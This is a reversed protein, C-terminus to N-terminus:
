TRMKANPKKKRFCWWSERESKSWRVCPCVPMSLLIKDRGRYILQAVILKHFNIIARSVAFTKNRHFKLRFITARLFNRSLERWTRSLRWRNKKRKAIRPSWGLYINEREKWREGRGLTSVEISAASTQGSLGALAQHFHAIASKRDVFSLLFKCKEMWCKFDLPFCYFLIREGPKRWVTSSLKTRNAVRKKQDDSTKHLGDFCCTHVPSICNCTLFWTTQSAKVGSSQLRKWKFTGRSM